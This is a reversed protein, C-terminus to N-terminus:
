VYLREPSKVCSCTKYKILHLRGSLRKDSTSADVIFHHQHIWGCEDDDHYHPQGYYLIM